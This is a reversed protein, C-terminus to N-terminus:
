IAGAFTDCSQPNGSTFGRKFWTARQAATGHTFSEPHVSGTEQVQIRDDGVASAAVLAQDIDGADLLRRQQTTNAWIGAYCDAQLELRVSLQNAQQPRSEELQRVRADTGLVDQVHHGLEHALVYAQAFQGPAGFKNRLEEYFGLDIYVKHDVPCYFPGSATQAVGCASEVSNRFLVLKADPYRVGQAALIKTWTSQVDDLVYTVFEVEQHEAPSEAVPAGTGSTATASAPANPDVAVDNFFNHGFVLSLVLLIAGGGLGIGRGMGAGGQGRRDEVNSNDAGPTWRM